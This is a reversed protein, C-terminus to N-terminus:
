NGRLKKNQRLVLLTDQYGEEPFLSFENYGLGFDLCKDGQKNKYYM